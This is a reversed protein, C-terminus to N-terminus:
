INMHLYSTMGRKLIGLFSITPFLHNPQTNLFYKLNHVLCTEVIGSSLLTLCFCQSDWNQAAYCSGTEVVVALHNLLYLAQWVLTVVQTQNKFGLYLHLSPVHFGVMCVSQTHTHISHAVAVNGALISM